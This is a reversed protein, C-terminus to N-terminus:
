DQDSSTVEDLFLQQLDALKSNPEYKVEMADLEAKLWAVTGTSNTNDEEAEYGNNVLANIQEELSLGQLLDGTPVVKKLSGSEDPEPTLQDVETAGVGPGATKPDFKTPDDVMYFRGKYLVVQKNDM